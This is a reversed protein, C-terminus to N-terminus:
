VTKIFESYVDYDVDSINFIPQTWVKDRRNGSEAHQIVARVYKESGNMTYSGTRGNVTKVVQSNEKLFTITAGDDGSDISLVGNQFVPQNISHGLTEVALFNGCCLSKLIENRNKANTFVYVCGWQMQWQVSITHADSVAVGWAANGNDWLRQAAFDTGYGTPIVYPYTGDEDKMASLGNFLEAFRLRTKIKDLQEFTLNLDPSFPHALSMMIGNDKYTDIYEQVSLGYLGTIPTKLNYTCIHKSSQQAQANIRSEQSDFLWILGEPVDEPSPNTIGGYTDGYDTITMFDYGAARYAALTTQANDTGDYYLGTERDRTHCHLQGILAMSGAEKYPNYCKVLKGNAFYSDNSLIYEKDVKAKINNANENVDGISKKISLDFTVASVFEAINAVESSDSPERRISIYYETNADLTISDVWGSDHVRPNDLAKIKFGTNAYATIGRPMTIYTKTRVMNLYNPASSTYYTGHEFLSFDFTGKGLDLLTIINGIANTTKDINQIEKNIGKVEGTIDYSFAHCSAHGFANANDATITVGTPPVLAISVNDASVSAMLDSLNARGEIFGWHGGVSDIGGEDNLKGKYTDGTFFAIAAKWNDAIYVYHGTVDEATVGNASPNISGDSALLLGKAWELTELSTAANLDEKLDAAKGNVENIAAVVNTKATTTLSALNGIKADVAAVSTDLAALVTAVDTQTWKSPNFAGASTATTCAYLANEHWVLDGVAYASSTDYEEAIMSKIAELITPLDNSDITGHAAVYDAIVSLLAKKGEINDFMVFYESGSLSALTEETLNEAKIDAM